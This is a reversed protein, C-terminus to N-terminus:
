CVIECTIRKMGMVGGGRYKHKASPRAERERLFCFFDLLIEM